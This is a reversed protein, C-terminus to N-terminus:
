DRTSPSGCIHFKRLVEPSVEFGKSILADIVSPECDTELPWERPHAPSTQKDCADIFVQEGIIKVDRKADINNVIRWVLMYPNDLDNKHADIFIAIKLSSDLDALNKVFALPSTSESFKSETNSKSFESKAINSEARATKESDAGSDLADSDLVGSDMEAKEVGIIAIKPASASDTGYQRVIKVGNMRAALLACLEEDGLPKVGLPKEALRELPASVDLGLKGGYAYSPSAHDLADCIGESLMIRSTSFRELVYALVKPYDTLAPADEGLFIAHKVFSMQGVGWFAHMIQKAHGPYQPAIKALILNHFVGNEPMNYDVLGHATTQLMPLFARETLYGMYKDEIPPKGVVSAHYIPARKHTIASVELVPYPEIPTYFGTHDGFPGEDRLNEVDVFGEIVFDCDAPVSLENSLCKVVEVRRRKILGYLMLEYAGHPLPAQACWTYLPDGGIGISVPMKCGAKKYEHFFHASDKHIQWHLGLENKSHVQLRYLGLNKRKGDISQTYVQGMTIFPAGDHKWTTLIPLSYLDINEGLIRVEQASARKVLKPLCFRLVSYRRLTAFIAKLGKPPALNLLAKIEAAISEASKGALLEMRAFSGFVNMIIPTSHARGGRSDLPRTFLLAKGGNPKKSELYALHPIELYIDLPTDIIELEDHQKLLEITRQM